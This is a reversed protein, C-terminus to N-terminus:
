EAAEMDARIADQNNMLLGLIKGGIFTTIILTAILFWVFVRRPDPNAACIEMAALMAFVLGSATYGHVAYALLRNGTPVPETM